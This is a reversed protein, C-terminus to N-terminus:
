PICLLGPRDGQYGSDRTLRGKEDYDVRVARAMVGSVLDSMEDVLVVSCLVARFYSPHCVRRRTNREKRKIKDEEAVALASL